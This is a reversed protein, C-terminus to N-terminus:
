GLGAAEREVAVEVAVALGVRQEVVAAVAVPPHPQGVALLESPAHRAVGRAETVERVLSREHSSPSADMARARRCVGSKVSVSTPAHPLAGDFPETGSRDTPSRAGTDTPSRAGTTLPSM